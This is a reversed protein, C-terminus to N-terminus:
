LYFHTLSFGAYVLVIYLMAVSRYLGALFPTNWYAYSFGAAGLAATVLALYWGLAPNAATASLLLIVAGVGMALAWAVALYRGFVKSYSAISPREEVSAFTKRGFEFINFLVWGAIAFYYARLDSSVVGPSFAASISLSLPVVVLTHSLAYLALRCRLYAGLFFEKYMLLSYVAATLMGLFAYRGLLTFSALEAALCIGAAIKLDVPKLLGRPLPREPHIKRDTQFDKIEDFLRLKFFFVTVGVILSAIQLQSLGTVAAVFVYHALIFVTIMVSHSLPSFREKAFLLWRKILGAPYISDNM